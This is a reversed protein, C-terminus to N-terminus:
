GARACFGKSLLFNWAPRRRSIVEGRRDHLRPFGLAVFTFQDAAILGFERVHRQTSMHFDEISRLRWPEDLQLPKLTQFPRAVSGEPFGSSNGSEFGVAIRV